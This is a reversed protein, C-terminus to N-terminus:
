LDTKLLFEFEFEFKGKRIATKGFITSHLFSSTQSLLFPLLFHWLYPVQYRPLPLIFLEKIVENFSTLEVWIM